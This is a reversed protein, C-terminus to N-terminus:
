RQGWKPPLGIRGTCCPCTTMRQPTPPWPVVRLVTVGTEHVPVMQVVPLITDTRVNM